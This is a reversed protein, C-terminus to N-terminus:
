LTINGKENMHFTHLIEKAARPTAQRISLYADHVGVQWGRRAALEATGLLQSVSVSIKAQLFPDSRTHEKRLDNLIAEVDKPKM